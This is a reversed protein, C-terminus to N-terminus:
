VNLDVTRAHDPTKKKNGENRDEVFPVENYEPVEPHVSAGADLYEPVEPLASTDAVQDEPVEPHDIADSDQDEPDGSAEVTTVESEVPM